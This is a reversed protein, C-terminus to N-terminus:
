HSPQTPLHPRPFVSSCSQRDNPPLGCERGVPESLRDGWRSLRPAAPRPRWNRPGEIPAHMGELDARRALVFFSGFAVVSAAPNCCSSFSGSQLMQLLQVAAVIQVINASYQSCSSYLSCLITFWFCPFRRRVAQVGWV